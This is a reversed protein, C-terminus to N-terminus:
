GGQLGSSGTLGDGGAHLHSAKASVGVSIPFLAPPIYIGSYNVVAATIAATIDADGYPRAGAGLLRYIERMIGDHSSAPALKLAMEIKATQAPTAGRLPTYGPYYDSM